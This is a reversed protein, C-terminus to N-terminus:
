GTKPYLTIHNTQRKADRQNERKERVRRERRGRTM